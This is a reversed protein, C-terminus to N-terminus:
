KLQENVFTIEEETMEKATMTVNAADTDFAGEPVHVTIETNGAQGTFDAAESTKEVYCGFISSKRVEMQIKDVAGDERLIIQSLDHEEALSTDEGNEEMTRLMDERQIIETVSDKERGQQSDAVNYQCVVADQVDSIA